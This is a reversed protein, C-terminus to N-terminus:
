ETEESLFEGDTKSYMIRQSSYLGFKGSMIYSVACSIAFFLIGGIGFVEISLFISALPCNVVGCFLCIFGIAAGFVVDLGLLGAAVGGFTAGVFFAPVIEGGKFGASLSIATFAIKLIFAEPRIDGTMAREIVFMGAGNYDYTGLLLTAGVLICSLVAARVYDNNFLKKTYHRSKEIVACFMISVAACLLSLIVVRSMSGFKLDPITDLIFNVPVIGFSDAIKCAVASSVICPFLATYDVLGVSSVELSFVAATLPTGFLASFVSAMGSMIIIHMSDPCMKFAKGVNYGISGGLQLAAGERGGSGGVLQTIVTSIFILPIMVLPIKNDHRLSSIVLNTDVGESKAFLKYMAVIVLAGAPMLFLIWEHHGRLETGFDIAMHFISGIVGGISGVAISVATWKAFSLIYRILSRLSEKVKIM